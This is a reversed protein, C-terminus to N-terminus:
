LKLRYILQSIVQVKTNLLARKLAALFTQLLRIYTFSLPISEAAIMPSQQSEAASIILNMM